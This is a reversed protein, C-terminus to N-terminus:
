RRILGIVFLVIIAGIAATIITGIIGPAISIGLYGFLFSGVFAGIIGIIVNGVFGFGGGKVVLGALFGAVLGVLVLIILGELTVPMHGERQNRAGQRERQAGAEQTYHRGVHCLTSRFHLRDQQPAFHGKV